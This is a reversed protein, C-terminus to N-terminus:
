RQVPPLGKSRRDRDILANVALEVRLLASMADENDSPNLWKELMVAIQNELDTQYMGTPIFGPTESTAPHPANAYRLWAAKAEFQDAPMPPVEWSGDQMRLGATQTFAASNVFAVRAPPAVRLINWYARVQDDMVLWRLM